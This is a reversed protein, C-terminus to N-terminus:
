NNYIANMNCGREKGILSVMVSNRLNCFRSGRLYLAM